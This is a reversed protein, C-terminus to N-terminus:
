TYRQLEQLCNIFKAIREEKTLNNWDNLSQYQYFNIDLKIYEYEDRYYETYYPPLYTNLLEKTNFLQYIKQLYVASTVDVSGTDEQEIDDPIICVHLIEFPVDCFIRQISISNYRYNGDHFVNHIMTLGIDHAPLLEKLDQINPDVVRMIKMIEDMAEEVQENTLIANTVPNTIPLDKMRKSVIHKYFNPAYFCDIRIDGNKYKTKLQFMMNLRALLYKKKNFRENDIVDMDSSCRKQKSSKSLSDNNLVNDIFYKRDKNILSAESFAKIDPSSINAKKLLSLLGIDVLEKYIDIVKKNDDYEKLIEKYKADKIYYPFQQRSVDLVTKDPLVMTPRSPRPPTPLKSNPSLKESEEVTKQWEQIDQKYKTFLTKFTSHYENWEEDNKFPREPIKLTIIDINEIGIKKLIVILPDEIDTFTKNDINKFPSHEKDYKGNYIYSLEDYYKLLPFFLDGNTANHILKDLHELYKDDFDNSLDNYIFNIISSYQKNFKKVFRQYYETYIDSFFDSLFAVEDAYYRLDDLHNELDDFYTFQINLTYRVYEKLYKIYDSLFADLVQKEVKPIDFHEYRYNYTEIIHGIYQCYDTTNELIKNVKDIHELNIIQYYFLVDLYKGFLLHNKPLKDKISYLDNHEQQYLYNFAMEYMKYYSSNKSNSVLIKTNDIPDRTPNKLWKNVIKGIYFTENDQLAKCHKNLKKFKSSNLSLSKKTYPHKHTKYIVDCDEKTIISIPYKNYEKTTQSGFM